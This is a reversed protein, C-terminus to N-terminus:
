RLPVRLIMGVRIVNPNPIASRNLNWIESWRAYNRYLKYAIGSLSDGAVVKYTRTGSTKSASPAATIPKGGAKILNSPLSGAEELSWELTARSIRNDAARQEVKVPLDIIRWWVSQEYASSGGVFRVKQGSKALDTLPLIVHEISARYDLSGIRHSFKLTRFSPGIITSIPKLGEREVTGWKAVESHEFTTPAMYLPFRKGATNTVYM